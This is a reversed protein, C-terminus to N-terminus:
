KGGVIAGAMSGLSFLTFLVGADVKTVKLDTIIDPLLIGWLLFLLGLLYFGTFIVITIPRRDM